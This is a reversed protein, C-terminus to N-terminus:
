HHYTFTVGFTRPRFSYGRLLRSYEAGSANTLPVSWDYNTLTHTDTLNDIFPQVSLDGFSMGARFSLYSTSPLTFDDPDYQDTNAPDQTPPVWKAHAEYEWDLRVFSDHQVFNFHYELGAALTAPPNPQGSEGTVADGASALIGGDQPSIVTKTLRADTYGAALEASLAETAAWELQVDGGKAVADGLNTVYTLECVPVDINQQIDQWRIYYVSAAIKLTGAIRDKTGVEFSDLHDSGYTQPTTVGPAFQCAAAPLPNNGGGPRFGKAYTGYVMDSPTFQWTLNVKPTFANETTSHYDATTPAFLQPGGTVSDISAFMHSERLGLTGKLTDTFSYTAEGYWAYQKDTAHTDLFYSDFPDVNSPVVAGTYPDVSGPTAYGLPIYTQGGDTSYSFVDPFDDGFAAETFEELLPDHIQELYFQRDESFFLGTTWVLKANPDSSVLRLEQVINEQDNDISAPSLYNEAGPPLHIGTGDIFPFPVGPELTEWGASNLLNGAADYQAFSSYFGLNYETGDYGTQEDRHYFSTNSILHAFGLDGDVKLAPLYFEDPMQRLTPDGNYYQNNAGNSSDVWFADTNHRDLKQFYISPTVNWNDSAAWLFALRALYTANYNANKEEVTPDITTPTTEDIWGGDRRYWLTLRAGLKSDILPGGVAAGAEYSPAGGQTYDVEGRADQTTTTLSPQVTIYRVTGGESGAGFLTGQPGRLVEVRDIDFMKPVEEDPNFALGRMQIPTDDIYIGTTGSGGSSSIGRISINNTGSTDISLGPTFRAIDSIDKIGKIEMDASTIATISIPVKSESEERRTATVTVEQLVAPTQDATATATATAAPADDALAAPLRLVLLPLAACM